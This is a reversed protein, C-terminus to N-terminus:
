LSVPWLLGAKAALAVQSAALGAQLISRRNM